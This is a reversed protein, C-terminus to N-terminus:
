RVSDRKSQRYDRQTSMFYGGLLVGIRMVLHLFRSPLDTAGRRSEPTVAPRHPAMGIAVYVPAAHASRGAGRVV